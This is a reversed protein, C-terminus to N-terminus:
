HRVLEGCCRKYKKGSGCPCARKRSVGEMPLARPLSKELPGEGPLHLRAIQGACGSDLCARIICMSIVEMRATKDVDQDNVDFRRAAQNLFESLILFTEPDVALDAGTSMEFGPMSILRCAIVMGVEATMGFGHNALM